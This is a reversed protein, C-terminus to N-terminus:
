WSSEFTSERAGITKTCCLPSTSVEIWLALTVILGFVEVKAVCYSSIPVCSKGSSVLNPRVGKALYAVNFGWGTGYFKLDAQVRTM